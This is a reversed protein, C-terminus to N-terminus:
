HLGKKCARLASLSYGVAHATPDPALGPDSLGTLPPLPQQEHETAGEPAPFTLAADTGRSVGHAIIQRREAAGLLPQSSLGAGMDGKPSLTSRAPARM